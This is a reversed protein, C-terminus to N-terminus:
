KQISIVFKGPKIKDTLPPLAIADRNNQLVNAGDKKMM